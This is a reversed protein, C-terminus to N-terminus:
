VFLQELSDTLAEVSYPRIDFQSNFELTKSRLSTLFENFSRDFDSPTITYGLNNQELFDSTKGSNSFLVIPKRCSLYEFFKTNFAFSHDPASFLLCFDSMCMKEYIDKLPIQDHIRLTSIKESRIKEVLAADHTGYFDFNLKLFFEPDREKLKKLNHIFPEIVYELNNYLSGAYVFHIIDKQTINLDPRVNLADAADFGNNLTIIASDGAINRSRLKQSMEDSVTIIKDAKKLVENEIRIEHSLRKLSLNKFGHFSKNDSWPDRYDIILNIRPHKKKIGLAHHALKFPPITVVVNRINFKKILKDATQILQIKWFVSRDFLTGRSYFKFFMTWFRYSVKQAITVPYKNLVSPYKVPLPHLIINPHVVDKNWESSDGESAKSTIVHVTYGKMCLYKAFKAWRRGGIGKEPPFIYSIILLHKGSNM